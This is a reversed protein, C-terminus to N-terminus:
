SLGGQLPHYMQSPQDSIGFVYYAELPDVPYKDCRSSWRLCTCVKGLSVMCMLFSHTPFNAAWGLSGEQQTHSLIAHQIDPLM